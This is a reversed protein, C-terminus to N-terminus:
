NKCKHYIEVSERKALNTRGEEKGLVREKKWM